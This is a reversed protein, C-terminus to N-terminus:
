LLKKLKRDYGVYDYFDQVSKHHIEPIDKYFHRLGEFEDGWTVFLMKDKNHRRPCHRTKLFNKPFWHAFASWSIAERYFGPEGPQKPSVFHLRVYEKTKKDLEKIVFESM